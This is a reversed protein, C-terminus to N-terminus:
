VAYVGCSRHFACYLYAAQRGASASRRSDRLPVGHHAPKDMYARRSVAARDYGNNCSLASESEAWLLGYGGLGMAPGNDESCGPVDRDCQTCLLAAIAVGRGSRKAVVGHESRIPADVPATLAAMCRWAAGIGSKTFRINPTCDWSTCRCRRLASSVWASHLRAVFCIGLCGLGTEERSAPYMGHAM